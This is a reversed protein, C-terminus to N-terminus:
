PQTQSHNTPWPHPTTLPLQSATNKVSHYSSQESLPKADAQHHTSSATYPHHTLPHIIPHTIPHHIPQAHPTLPHPTLHTLFSHTLSHLLPSQTHIHSPDTASNTSGTISHALFPTSSNNYLHPATHLLLIQITPHTPYHIHYQNRSLTHSQTTPYTFFHSFILRFHPHHVWQVPPQTHLHHGSENNTEFLYKMTHITVNHSFAIYEDM